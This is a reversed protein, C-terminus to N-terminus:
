STSAGGHLQVPVEFRRLTERVWDPDAHLVCASPVLSGPRRFIATVSVGSVALGKKRYRALDRHWAPQSADNKSRSARLMSGEIVYETEYPALATSATMIKLAAKRCSAASSATSWHRIRERLGSTRRYVCESLGPLAYWSFLGLAVFPGIFWREPRTWGGSSDITLAFVCLAFGLIALLVCVLRGVRVFKSRSVADQFVEFHSAFKRDQLELIHTLEDTACRCFEADIPYRVSSVQVHTVKM